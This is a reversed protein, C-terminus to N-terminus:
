QKVYKMEYVEDASRLRLFYIGDPQETLDFRSEGARLTQNLVRKGTANVVELQFDENSEPLQLTLMGQGPNPFVHINSADPDSVGIPAYWFQHCVSDECFGNGVTMCVEYDGAGHQSVPIEKNSQIVGLFKRNNQLSYLRFRQSPGYGENAITLKEGSRNIKFQAVLSEAVVIEKEVKYSCEFEKNSVVDIIKGKTLLSVMYKGAQAYRNSADEPSRKIQDQGDGFGWIFERVLSHNKPTFTVLGTDCESDEFSFDFDSEVTLIHPGMLSDSHKRGANDIFTVSGTLLGSRYIPVNMRTTMGKFQYTSDGIRVITQRVPYPSFADKLEIEVMQPLCTKYTDPPLKAFGAKMNMQVIDVTFSDKQWQGLSDQTWVTSKQTGVLPYQHKTLRNYGSLHPNKENLPYNVESDITGDNNFDFVVREKAVPGKYNKLYKFWSRRKKNSDPLEYFRTRNICSTNSLDDTLHCIFMPQWYYVSDYIKTTEGLYTKKSARVTALHGVSFEQSFHTIGNFCSLEKKNTQITCFIDYKGPGLSVKLAAAHNNTMVSDITKNVAVGKTDFTKHIIYKVSKLSDEKISHSLQLSIESKQSISDLGSITSVTFRANPTHKITVPKDVKVKQRKTGVYVLCHPEYLGDYLVMTGVYISDNISSQFVYGISGFNDDILEITKDNKTNPTTKLTFSILKGNCGSYTSATLLPNQALLAGSALLFLLSIYSTKM